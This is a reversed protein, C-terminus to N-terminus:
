YLYCCNKDYEVVMIFANEHGLSMVLQMKLFRPDFMLVLMNHGKKKNFVHLFSIFPIFVRLIQQKM